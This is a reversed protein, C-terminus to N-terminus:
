FSLYKLVQVEKRFVLQISNRDFQVALPARDQDHRWNRQWRQSEVTQDGCLPEADIRWVRRTASFTRTRMRRSPSLIWVTFFNARFM